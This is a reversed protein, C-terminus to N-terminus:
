QLRNQFLANIENTLIPLDIVEYNDADPHLRVLHLSVINTNYKQELIAKYINLQLAYHWFNTDPIHKVIPNLAFKNWENNQTIDKCRKWDYISFTGDPNQFIMDISGAIKIDEHFIMWETRYPKLYHYDKIFNLFYEWEVEKLEEKLEENFEEKLIEDLELNEMYKDYLDQNSYDFDLKANNMFNEIKEHLKTGSSSSTEGNKKWSLKIQNATMGWYKHETNWKPGEMIKKIISDADFKPFLNHIWTTVSTYKSKTDTLIEYKHGLTYFKIQSDRDHSFKNSLITAM